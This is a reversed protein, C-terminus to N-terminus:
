ASRRTGPGCWKKAQRDTRADEREVMARFTDRKLRLRQWGRMAREHLVAYRAMQAEIRALEEAANVAHSGAAM